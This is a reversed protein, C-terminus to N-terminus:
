VGSGGYLGAASPNEARQHALSGGGVYTVLIPHPYDPGHSRVFARRPQGTRAQVRVLTVM